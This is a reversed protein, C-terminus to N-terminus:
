RDLIKSNLLAVLKKASLPKELFELNKINSSWERHEIETRSTAVFIPFTRDPIEIEIKACLAEGTMKPMDIDTILADIPNSVLYDWAALGHSATQVIFGAREVSMKLVRLVHPEDDAILITKKSM